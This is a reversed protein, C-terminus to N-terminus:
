ECRHIARSYLLPFQKHSRVDGERDGINYEATPGVLKHTEVYINISEMTWHQLRWQNLVLVVSLSSITTYLLPTLFSYGPTAVVRRIRFSALVSSIQSVRIPPSHLLGSTPIASSTINTNVAHVAFWNPNM